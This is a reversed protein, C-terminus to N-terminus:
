RSPWLRYRLQPSVTRGTFLRNGKHLEFLLCNFQYVGFGERFLHRSVFLLRKRKGHFGSLFEQELHDHNPKLDIPQMLPGLIELPLSNVWSNPGTLPGHVWSHVWSNGHNLYSEFALLRWAWSHTVHGRQNDASLPRRQHQKGCQYEGLQPGSAM